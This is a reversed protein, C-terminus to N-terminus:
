RRELRVETFHEGAGDLITSPPGALYRDFFAVTYANIIEHARTADIPGTVMPGFIGHWRLLPSFYPVDTLNVHFMGSVQVFYGDRTLKNFVARMTTQHQEIDFQSWGENQMTQADRTIWMAPQQLGDSVVRATMPADMVLCARLRRDIRCAEGAVIGGFSVGFIGSRDIDLRGNLIGNPGANNLTALQDLAFVVDQAFYPIIGEKFETGNLIPVMETPTISQQLLSNMQDKSLGAIQRGDPFVVSAAVYPQDIAVVVYGRSVLEQVQFNNMERYGTIGELFILVPFRPKDESVKAALQGYTIVYKLHGLLFAPWHHMKGQAAAFADAEPMYVAQQLAADHKAPYWIQVMLERHTKADANFVETRAADVWHYTVTGIDYPGTPADFRFVPLLVSLTTTVVIALGGVVGVLLKPFQYISNAVLLCTLLYVPYLQWRSGEFILQAGAALIMVLVAVRKWVLSPVPHLATLWVVLFTSALLLIELPRM